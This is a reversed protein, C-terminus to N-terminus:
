GSCFGPRVGSMLAAAPAATFATSASTPARPCMPMRAVSCSPLPTPFITPPAHAGNCRRMSLPPAASPIPAAAAWEEAERSSAARLSMPLWAATSRSTALGEASLFIM